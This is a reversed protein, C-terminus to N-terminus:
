HASPQPMEAARERDGADLPLPVEITGIRDTRVDRVGVRLWTATTPVDLTQVAGFTNKAGAHGRDDTRIANQSLGNLLKGGADYAAAAFELIQQGAPGADRDLVLYDITYKQLPIPTRLKTSKKRKRLIFYAPQWELNAMQEPTALAPAGASLHARFLIQHAMPAGQEMYAYMTDGPQHAVPHEAIVAEFKKEDGTLPRTPDDAYYFRRYELGYGKRGLNVEVKHLTGDYAPNTPAYSLEYYNGGNEVAEGLAVAVDNRNYYARGGTDWAIQDAVRDIGGFAAGPNLGQVDLPYVSVQASDLVDTAERMALTQQGADTSALAASGTIEQTPMNVIGGAGGLPGGPGMLPVPFQSSMWILNKRGPLGQLRKAIYMMAQFPLSVIGAGYNEQYLFAYPIHGQRHVDFATLLQNPDSTFGQVVRLDNGLMYLEFQSGAPKSALFTALVRRAVITDSSDPSPNMDVADYVIVYLPGREPATPVDMYTDPPLSPLKAVPAAKVQNFDFAEFSTLTQPTRNDLVSFDWKNLGKVAQHGKDMVVVDLVVRRVNVPITYPNAGQSQQARVSAARFGAFCGFVVAPIVSAALFTRKRIMM